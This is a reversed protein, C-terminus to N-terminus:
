SFKGINSKIISTLSQIDNPKVVVDDREPDILSLDVEVMKELNEYLSKCWDFKNEIDILRFPEVSNDLFNKITGEVSRNNYLIFGLQEISYKM